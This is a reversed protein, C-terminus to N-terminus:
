VEDEELVEDAQSPHVQRADLGKHVAWDEHTPKRGHKKVWLSYESEKIERERSFLCWEPGRFGVQHDALVLVGESEDREVRSVASSYCTGGGEDIAEECYSPDYQLREQSPLKWPKPSWFVQDGVVAWWETRMDDVFNCEYKLVTVTEIM